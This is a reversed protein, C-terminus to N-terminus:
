STSGPTQFPVSTRVAPTTRAPTREYLTVLSRLHGSTIRSKVLLEAMM